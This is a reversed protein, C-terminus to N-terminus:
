EIVDKWGTNEPDFGAPFRTTEDYKAM